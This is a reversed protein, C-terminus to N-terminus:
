TDQFRPDPDDNYNIPHYFLSERHDREEAKRNMFDDDEDHVDSHEAAWATVMVFFLLLALWFAVYLLGGLVVLKVMWV